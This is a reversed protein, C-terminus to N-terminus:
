ADPRGTLEALDDADLDAECTPIRDIGTLGPTVAGGACGGIARHAIGQWRPSVRKTETSDRIAVEPALFIFVIFDSTLLLIQRVRGGLFGFTALALSTKGLHAAQLGPPVWLTLQRALKLVATNAEGACTKKRIYTVTPPHM